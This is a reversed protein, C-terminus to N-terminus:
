YKCVMPVEDADKVRKIQYASSSLLLYVHSLFSSHVSHWSEFKQSHEQGRLKLPTLEVVHTLLYVVLVSSIQVLLV